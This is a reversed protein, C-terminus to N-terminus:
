CNRSTGPRCPSRRAEKEKLLWPGLRSVLLAFAVTWCIAALVIGDVGPWFEMPGAIRTVTAALVLAFATTLVPGSVLERGTHGLTARMMVAVTMGGIAGIGFLHAPVSNGVLGVSATAVGAFGVPILLYAVHLMLLLPSRWTAPGRWRLLRAVHLAAALMAVAGTAATEPALSWSLLAAAGGAICLTDFRNPPIPLRASEAKALWNRTFSPIIRGGILMILFVLIAIGLRRAVDTTGGAMVQVHFAVNTAWLLMVPVIVRLNRWNKGAVIERAVMSAVALLFAQDVLFVGFDPMGLAGWLALRGALWLALLLALPWGRTPMNGTWNPVATFLFGALVAAGYGFIMEHVHWDIVDFTGDFAVTGRWVFFWVPVVGLGFLMAALFFPRFGGSFLAPGSYDIRQTM